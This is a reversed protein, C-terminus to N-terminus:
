GGSPRTVLNMIAFSSGLVGAQAVSLGFISELYEPFISVVALESGFTLSYVLSLICIQSFEYRKTEPVNQALNPLNFKVTRVIQFIYIILLLGYLIFAENSSILPISQGSLKWILTAMSAYVPLMLLSYLILDKSSLIEIRPQRNIQFHEKGDPSNQAFKGYIIAWILCLLGSLGM